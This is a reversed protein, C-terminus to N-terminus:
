SIPAARPTGDLNLVTKQFRDDWEIEKMEEGRRRTSADVTITQEKLVIPHDASGTNQILFRLEVVPLSSYMTHDSEKLVSRITEGNSRIAMSAWASVKGPMRAGGLFLYGEETCFPKVNAADMERYLNVSPCPLRDQGKMKDKWLRVQFQGYRTNCRDLWAQDGQFLENWSKSVQSCRVLSRPDLM